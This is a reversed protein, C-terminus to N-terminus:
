PMFLQIFNFCCVNYMYMYFLFEAILFVVDYNNGPQAILFGYNREASM